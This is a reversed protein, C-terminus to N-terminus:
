KWLKMQKSLFFISFKNFQRWSKKTKFHTEFVKCFRFNSKALNKFFNLFNMWLSKFLYSWKSVILSWINVSASYFGWLLTMIQWFFRGNSCNRKEVFYIRCNTARVKSIKINKQKKPKITEVGNQLCGSKIDQQFAQCGSVFSVIGKKKEQTAQTLFSVVHIILLLAVWHLSGKQM